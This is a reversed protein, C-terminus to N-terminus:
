IKYSFSFPTHITKLETKELIKLKINKLLIKLLKKLDGKFKLNPIKILVVIMQNLHTTKYLKM